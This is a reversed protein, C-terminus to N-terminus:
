VIDKKIYVFSVLSFAVVLISSYVYNHMVILIDGKNLGNIILLSIFFIFGNLLYIKIKNNIIFYNQIVKLILIIPITFKMINLFEEIRRDNVNYVLELVQYGYFNIFILILISLVIYKGIYKGIYFFNSKKLKNIDVLMFSALFMIITDIIIMSIVYLGLELKSYSAEIYYINFKYSLMLFATALLSYFSNKLYSVEIKTDFLIEKIHIDRKYIFYFLIFYFAYAIAITFLIDINFCSFILICILLSLYLGIDIFYFEEVKEKVISTYKFINSIAAIFVVSFLILLYYFDKEKLIMNFYMLISTVIALVTFTFLYLKINVKIAKDINSKEFSSLITQNTGFSVLLILFTIITMLYTYNGMVETGYLRVIVLSILFSLAFTAIRGFRQVTKIM